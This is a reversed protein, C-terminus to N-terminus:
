RTRFFSRFALLCDEIARIKRDLEARETAWKVQEADTPEEVGRGVDDSQLQLLARYSRLSDCFEEEREALPDYETSGLGTVTRGLALLSSPSIFSLGLGSSAGLLGIGGGLSRTPLVSSSPALEAPAENSLGEVETAVQSSRGAVYDVCTTCPCAYPNVFSGLEGRSNLSHALAVSPPPLSVSSSPALSSM